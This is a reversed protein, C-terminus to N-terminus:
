LIHNTDKINRIKSSNSAQVAKNGNLRLNLANSSSEYNSTIFSWISWWESDQKESVIQAKSWQNSCNRIWTVITITDKFEELPYLVEKNQSAWQYKVGNGITRRGNIGGVELKKLLEGKRNFVGLVKSSICVNLYVKVNDLPPSADYASKM